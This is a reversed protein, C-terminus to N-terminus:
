RRCFNVFRCSRCHTADEETKSPQIFPENTDFLERIVGEMRKVFQSNIDLYNDMSKKNRDGNKFVGVKSMDRLRYVMPKIAETYKKEQAYANCYLMLQLIAKRREASRNFLHDMDNFDVKDSGTKYDIIRLPGDEGIRDIRDATYTFYFTQEGFTLKVDKHKRECELVTFFGDKGILEMDYKLAATVFKKIATSVISAEGTLPEDLNKKRTYSKNVMRCLVADLHTQKKFEQIMDYTVRYEGERPKGDVDPYYLQQLTDHVITGFVLHDMFDEDANDGRLDEIIDMFFALPCNIYENISSASLRKTGNEKKFEDLVQCVHGRKPITIKVDSIVPQTMALTSEIVKCGYVMKLQNVFRSVEGSGMAQDTTDYFMYLNTARSILRYFHYSWMSEQDDVTPMGNGRRIFDTIFSSSRFKRPLVRENASLIIVNDFDLCRTELMGMVQLGMLPEGKFPVSFVGALRDVLFFITSECQPVDYRGVADILQDLVEIYQGVFAEQLTIVRSTEDDYADGNEDEQPVMMSLVNECFLKLQELFAIVSASDSTQDVTHFLTAFPTGDFLSQPVAFLKETDIKQIAQLAEIGYCSKIIPHSLLVKVDNRYFRWEDDAEHRAQRHMKAVVRMLSAIDSDRLPYGMTVNVNTVEPNMSNLLPVFLGEDPLVIATNIANLTNTIKGEKILRDLLSSVCKVQGVNSPVGMVEVQPFGTIPESNFDSPEPFESKFFKVYKGGVNAGYKDDLAPSATDWFFLAKDRNALRKFIAMECNTLMNFGVFVYCTHGLDKGDKVVDVAQRYMQGLSCLGRSKLEDNYKNYLPLLTQWLKLYKARVEEEDLNDSNYNEKWLKEDTKDSLVQSSLKFYHSLLEYLDPGLYNAQLENNARVNEFLEKANVHNMDVDNFDNLVVNGWYVFRDFDYNKEGTLSIYCQYLTFLADVQNVVVGRSLKAIFDSITMIEPMLFVGNSTNDLEREFFKCSRHNPLVFCYDQVNGKDQFYKAIQRLFPTYM